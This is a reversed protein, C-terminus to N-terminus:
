DELMREHGSPCRGRVSDHYRPNDDDFVDWKVWHAGCYVANCRPCFFPAYELDLAYLAKADRMDIARRVDEFQDAAVGVVMASTFSHRSLQPAFANGLLMLRGAEKPCVSCIFSGEAAVAREAKKAGLARLRNILTTLLRKVSQTEM